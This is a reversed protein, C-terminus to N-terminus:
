SRGRLAAHEAAIADGVLREHVFLRTSSNTSSVIPVDRRQSGRPATSTGAPLQVNVVFRGGEYPMRVTPRKDCGQCGNESLYWV